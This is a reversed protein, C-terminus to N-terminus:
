KVDKLPWGRWGAQGGSEESGPFSKSVEQSWGLVVAGGHAM